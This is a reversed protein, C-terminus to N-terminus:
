QTNAVSFRRASICLTTLPTLMVSLWFAFLAFVITDIVYRHSDLFKHVIWLQLLQFLIRLFMMACHVLTWRANEKDNDIDFASSSMQIWFGLFLMHLLPLVSCQNRILEMIQFKSPKRHYVRIQHKGDIIAIENIHCVNRTRNPDIWRYPHPSRNRVAFLISVFSKTDICKTTSM